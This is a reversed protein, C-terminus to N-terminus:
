ARVQHSCWGPGAPLPSGAPPRNAPFTRQPLLWEVCPTDITPGGLCHPPLRDHTRILRPARAVCTAAARGDYEHQRVQAYLYSLIARRQAEQLDPMLNHLFRAFEPFSLYGRRTTDAAEFHQYAISQLRTPPRAPPLLPARHHAAASLTHHPGTGMQVCIQSAPLHARPGYRGAIHVGLPEEASQFRRLCKSGSCPECLLLGFGLEM